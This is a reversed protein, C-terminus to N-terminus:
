VTLHGWLESGDKRRYRKEIEFCGREGRMLEGLSREAPLFNAPYIERGVECGIEHRHEPYLEVAHTGALEQQSYGLMEGLAPNAELIRGDLQCIGIGIAAGEFMARFRLDREYDRAPPFQTVVNMDIGNRLIEPRPDRTEPFVFNQSRVASVEGENWAPSLM